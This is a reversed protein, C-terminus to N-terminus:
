ILVKLCDNSSDLEKRILDYNITTIDVSPNKGENLVSEFDDPLIETLKKNLNRPIGVTIKNIEAIKEHYNDFNEHVNKNWKIKAEKYCKDLQPNKLNLNKNTLDNPDVELPPKDIFTKYIDDIFNGGEDVIVDVTQDVKEPDEESVISFTLEPDIIHNISKITLNSLSNKYRINIMLLISKVKEKDNIKAVLKSSVSLLQNLIISRANSTATNFHFKFDKFFDSM